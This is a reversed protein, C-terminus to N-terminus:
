IMPDDVVKKERELKELLERAAQEARAQELVEEILERAAAHDSPLATGIPLCPPECTM